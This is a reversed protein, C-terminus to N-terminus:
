KKLKDSLTLEDIDSLGSGSDNFLSKLVEVEEKRGKRNVPIGLTYFMNLFERLPKLEFKYSRLKSCKKSSLSLPNSALIEILSLLLRQEPTIETKQTIDSSLFQEGLKLRALQIEHLKDAVTRGTVNKPSSQKDFTNEINKFKEAKEQTSKSVM